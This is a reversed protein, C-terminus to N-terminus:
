KMEEDEQRNKRVIENGKRNGRKKREEVKTEKKFNNQERGKERKIEERGVNRRDYIRKRNKGKGKEGIM